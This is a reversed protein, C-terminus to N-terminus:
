DWPGIVSVDSRTTRAVITLLLEKIDEFTGLNPQISLVHSVQNGDPASVQDFELDISFVVTGPHRHFVEQCMSELEAALEPVTNASSTAVLLNGFNDTSEWVM